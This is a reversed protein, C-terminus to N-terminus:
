GRRAGKSPSSSTPVLFRRPRIRNRSEWFSRIPFSRQFPAPTYGLAQEFEPFRDNIVPLQFWDLDEGTIAHRPWTFFDLFTEEDLGIFGSGYPAVEHVPTLFWHIAISDAEWEGPYRTRIYDVWYELQEEGDAWHVDDVCPVCSIEHFLHLPTIREHDFHRARYIWQDQTGAPSASPTWAARSTSRNHTINFRPHEALIAQREAALAEPRSSYHALRCAAVQGWWAKGSAHQEFRRGPNGAVGIYLLVGAEDFLRYLTTPQEAMSAETIPQPCRDLDPTEAAPRRNPSRPCAAVAVPNRRFKPSRRGRLGQKGQDSVQSWPRRDDAATAFTTRTLELLPGYARRSSSRRRRRDRYAAATTSEKHIVVTM